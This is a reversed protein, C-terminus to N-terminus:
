HCDNAGRKGPAAGASADETEEKYETIAADVLRNLVDLDVSNEGDKDARLEALRTMARCAEFLEGVDVSVLLYNTWIRWSDYSHKIAQGLCTFATRKKSYNAEKEEESLLHAGSGGTSRTQNLLVTALNNWSEGDEEELSTCRRFAREAATWDENRMAACGLVFWVKVFLPNISLAKELCPQAKDYQHRMFYFQGISRMARSSTGNSVKWATEYHTPKSELDGLLCWLKAKQSPSLTQGRRVAMTSDSELIKGELLDNVIQIAKKEEGLANYCKAVDEWMELRTFIELASRVVGLGLFRTALEKELEWTSPLNLTFFYQLREQPTAGKELDLDNEDKPKAVSELKLQDVLSQIQLLGREVTRSRNAELRSRLLLAMSHISWNQSGDDLVRTVFSQIQTTTLGHAPSTNTISLSLALLICEDLPHLVPQKSPDLASLSTDNPDVAASQTFATRELLTDDNLLVTKPQDGAAQSQASADDTGPQQPDLSMQERPKWGDDRERSRALVVLQSKEDIQFKTRKGMRGTLEYEVQATNAAQLFTESSVKTATSSLHVFQAHYLGILLTLSTKLDRGLSTDPLTQIYAEVDDLLSSPLPVATDLLRLNILALRLKWVAISGISSSSWSPLAFIQRALLLFGAKKVLHYAPEGAVALHEIAKDNVRDKDQAGFLESPDLEVEPGTWNTQIFALLAAIGCVLKELDTVDDPFTVNICSPTSSSDKEEGGDSFTFAGRYRQLISAYESKVILSRVLDDHTGSSAAAASSSTTSLASTTSLPWSLLILAHEYSQMLSDFAMKTTCLVKWVSPHLATTETVAPESCVWCLSSPEAIVLPGLCSYPYPLLPAAPRPRVSQESRQQFVILPFRASALYMTRSKPCDGERWAIRKPRRVPM